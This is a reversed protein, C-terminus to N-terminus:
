GIVVAVYQNLTPAVAFRVTTITGSTLEVDAEVQDFPATTRFVQVQVYNTGFGHNIAFSTASGDGLSQVMKRTVALLGLMTLMEATTLDKPDAAAGTNNGKITNAPMNALKTNTVADAAITAVNIATTVDGTLPARTISDAAVVITADGAVVDLTRNASLDGGGTLGAGATISRATPVTGAVTAIVATNVVMSDAGVTLTTDGAVVNLVNGAQTMGAGATVAGGGAFQVWVIPSTGLTIPANTTQSWSSDGMTTGEQVFAAASVLDTGVDADVTRTWAAGHANYIGNESLTTQNKVLVRDNDVLVVGDITQLGTLAINATTAARASFKWSLGAIANDVYQKNAADTGSGPDLLNTIHKGGMSVDVLPPALASLPITSHAAADHVPSGHTHDSRAVTTAVGNAAALGFATEPVVAGYGVAAGSQAAVWTTGNWWYLINSVTDFYLQGKVPASPAAALNQIAANQLENKTLDLATLFKRSM